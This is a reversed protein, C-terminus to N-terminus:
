NLELSVGENEISFTTNRDIWASGTTSSTSTNKVQYSLSYDGATLELSVLLDDNLQLNELKKGDRTVINNGKKITINRINDNEGSLAVSYTKVLNVTITTNNSVTFSNSYNAYGEATVTYNYTGPLLKLKNNDKISLTRQGDKASSDKIIVTSDSPTANFTVEFMGDEIEDETYLTITQNTLNGNNITFSRQEDTVYGDASITFTYNGNPINLIDVVGDSSATFTRDIPPETIRLKAGNISEGKKNRIIFRAEYFKVDITRDATNVSFEGKAPTLCETNACTIEYQYQGNPLDFNVKGSTTQKTSVAVLTQDQIKSIKVSTNNAISSNVRNKVDFTIKSKIEQLDFTFSKDINPMEITGTITQYGAKSISYNYSGEALSIKAPKFEGNEISTKVEIAKTLINGDSPLITITANELKTTTKEKNRVEISATGAQALRVRVVEEFSVEGEKVAFGEAFIQYTYSQNPNLNLSAKGTNNSIVTKFLEGNSRFVRIEAQSVPQNPGSIDKVVEFKAETTSANNIFKAMAGRNVNDEPKYSGDPYGGIIRDCQLTRIENAFTNGTTDTFNAVSCDLNQQLNAGNFIFKAMAGRNVQSNPRYTGDPYGGIVNNCKLSTIYKYFPSGKPVDSFDGCDTKETLKFGNFIFKAMAGRNVLNEPKYTGDPYGDIINNERLSNIYNAFTHNSPVDSFFRPTQPAQVSASGNLATFSSVFVGALIFFQTTKQLFKFSRIKNKNNTM